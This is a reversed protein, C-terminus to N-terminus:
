CSEWVDIPDLFFSPIVTRSPVDNGDIIQEDSVIGFLGIKRLEVM